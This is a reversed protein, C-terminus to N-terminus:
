EVPTVAEMKVLPGYYHLCFGILQSGNILEEAIQLSPNDILFNQLVSIKIPSNALKIKKIKTPQM